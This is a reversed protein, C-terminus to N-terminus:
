SATTEENPTAVPWAQEERPAKVVSDVVDVFARIPDTVSTCNGEEDAQGTIIATGVVTTGAIVSARSNLPLQKILGEDDVWMDFTTEVYELMRTVQIVDFLGGIIEQKDPYREIDREYIDGYTPIVISTYM